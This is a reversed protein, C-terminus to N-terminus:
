FVAYVGNPTLWARASRQERVRPAGERVTFWGGVLLGVGLVTAISGGLVAWGLQQPDGVAVNVIIVGPGLVSGACGLIFMAGGLASFGIRQPRVLYRSGQAGLALDVSFPWPTDADMSLRHLGPRLYLSCPARCRVPDREAGFRASLDVRLPAVDSLGIATPAAPETQVTLAARGERPRLVDEVEVREATPADESQAAALRSASSLLAALVIPRRARV